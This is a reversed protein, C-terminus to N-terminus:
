LVREGAKAADAALEEAVMAVAADAYAALFVELSMRSAGACRELVDVLGADLEITRTTHAAPAQKRAVLALQPKRPSIRSKPM